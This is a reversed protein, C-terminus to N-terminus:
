SILAPFFMSAITILAASIIAGMTACLVSKKFDLNLFAAVASGTWVGTTPLPIAIFTILGVEKYKEMHKSNKNIKKEIFENIKSFFEYKKMWM